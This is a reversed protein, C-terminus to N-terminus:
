EEVTASLSVATHLLLKRARQEMGDGRGTSDLPSSCAADRPHLTVLLLPRRRWLSRHVWLRGLLEQKGGGASIEAVSKRVAPLVLDKATTGEIRLAATPSSSSNM